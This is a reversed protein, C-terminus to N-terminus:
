SLQRKRVGGIESNVLTGTATTVTGAAMTVTGTAMTVTGAAMTVDMPTPHDTEIM